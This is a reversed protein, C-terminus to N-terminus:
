GFTFAYGELGPSSSIMQLIGSSSRPLALVEYLRHKDVTISSNMVDKGKGVVVQEGNLLLKVQISKNTSSGMVIFVKRANFHIKLASNSETSMIHEAHIVWGGKLAWTNDLLEEPYSYSASQDHRAKEPSKFNAARTYGLYTEPTEARTVIESSVTSESVPEKLGLLFRINNETQVYEGEGFHQYVVNGNKDILYHAPWYRNDYNRWTNFQNDLAVPYVIGDKVVANKVNDLNKEFDFEPSHVGIIVLGDNHYKKYWERLYPLTRICNICSYTWFDILVVKGKLQNLQLPESNIWATIGALEPAPYSNLVPNQLRFTNAASVTKGCVLGFICSIVVVSFLRRFFQIM